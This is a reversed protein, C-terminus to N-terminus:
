EDGTKMSLPRGARVFGESSSDDGDGDGVEPDEDESGEDESDDDGQDEGDDNDDTAGELSGVEEEGDSDDGPVGVDSEESDSGESDDGSHGLVNGDTAEDTRRYAGSSESPHKIMAQKNDDGEGIAALADKSKQNALLRSQTEHQAILKDIAKEDETVKRKMYEFMSIDLNKDGERLGQQLEIFQAAISRIRVSIDTTPNEGTARNHRFVRMAWVPELASYFGMMASAKNLEDWSRWALTDSTAQSNALRWARVLM